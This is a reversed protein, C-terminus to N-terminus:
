EKRLSETELCNRFILHSPKSISSASLKIMLISIKDHGHTKNKDLSRIIKVVDDICFELSSTRERTIFNISTPVTSDNSM